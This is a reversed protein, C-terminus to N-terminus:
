AKEIPLWFEYRYGQETKAGWREILFVGGDTDTHRRYGAPLPANEYYSHNIHNMSEEYTPLWETTVVLYEGGPLRELAYGEPVGAADGVIKGQLYLSEDGDRLWVNVCSPDKAFPDIRDYGGKAFFGDWFAGFDAQETLRNKVGLFTFADLRAPFSIIKVDSM